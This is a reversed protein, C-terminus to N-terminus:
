INLPFGEGVLDAAADEGDGVGGLVRVPHWSKRQEGLVWGNRLRRYVLFGKKWCFRVIRSGSSRSRSERPLQM